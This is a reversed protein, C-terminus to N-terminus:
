QHGRKQLLVHIRNAKRIRLHDRLHHCEAYQYVAPRGTCVNAGLGVLNWVIHFISIKEREPQIKKYFQKEICLNLM